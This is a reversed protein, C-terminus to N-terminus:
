KFRSLIVMGQWVTSQRAEGLGAAVLRAMGLM